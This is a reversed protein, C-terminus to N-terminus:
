NVYRFEASALLAQCFTSLALGTAERVNTGDERDLHVFDEFYNKALSLEGDTPKRGLTLMYLYDIRDSGSKRDEYIRRATIGAQQVVFPSNLFYLSQGPVITTQRDGTVFSPEAFDFVNLVEPLLDRVVPMYISRYNREGDNFADTGQSLGGVRSGARSRMRSRMSNNSSMAPTGQIDRESITRGVFGDEAYSVLSGVPPRYDLEDSVALISDRIEEAELRRKGHQWHYANDPDKAYNRASFESALQYTRSMMIEKVMKKVSYGHAQFRIALHDLLEPHTPRKGNVGFNDVTGVIGSGMLWNWIRNAMVRAFLPNDVATLWEALEKRGSKSRPIPPPKPGSLVYVFGRQIYERPNEIEGRDLVRANQPNRSDRVGMSMAKPSGDRERTTLREEFLNIQTNLRQIQQRSMGPDSNGGNRRAERAALFLKSREEKRGDVYKQLQEIEGTKLSRRSHVEDKIPLELLPTSRRNGQTAVTGFFTETSAFIGALAYYERQSIPDFKHDHCRACAVTIGLISQSMADIQEDILDARFQRQNAENMSKAGLALFGTAVMLDAREERTESRLLDGAIQEQVFRDYPKDENFAKIVYDRYRWAHPFTINAEKGSSEAYRAVDLWHRGWKEGFLPSELLLDVLREFDGYEKGYSYREVTKPSPPLGLLDYYARRVLTARDADGVIKLGQEETKQLVFRDIDTRPWADAPVPIEPKVPQKFAWFDKAKGPDRWNVVVTNTDARPDPAGMKVWQEFDGIIRRSLKYDPPMQLDENEHQIAEILLSRGPNGPIIAHGSSGGARLGTRSDVILGGKSKGEQESHCKYCHKILVPRIKEEFFESQVASIEADAASVSLTALFMGLLAPLQLRKMISASEASETEFRGHWGSRTVRRTEIQNGDRLIIKAPPIAVPKFPTEIKASIPPIRLRIPHGTFSSDRSSFFELGCFGLEWSAEIRL